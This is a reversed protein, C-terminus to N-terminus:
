EDAGQKLLLSAILLYFTMGVQSEFTNEVLCSSFIIIWLLFYLPNDLIPSFLLPILMISFLTLLGLVGMEVTTFLFQNHPVKQNHVEISPHFQKYYAKSVNEVQGIGSGLIPKDKILEKAMLISRWRRGDSNHGIAGNGLQEIDYRMYDIKNKFSPLIEYAIFPMALLALGFLPLIWYKRYRFTFFVILFFVGFYYSLLGSRVSLIHILLFLFISTFGFVKKDYPSLKTHGSIFFYLSALGAFAVMLSYRIHNLPAPINKAQAIQATYYSYNSFYNILVVLGSITILFIFFSLILHIRSARPKNLAAISLPIVLWPLRHYVQKLALQLDPAILVFLAAILFFLLASLIVFNNKKVFRWEHEKSSLILNLALLGTGISILARSSIFGFLIVFILLITRGSYYTLSGYQSM